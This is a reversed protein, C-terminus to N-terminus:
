YYRLNILIIFYCNILIVNQVQTIFLTNDLSCM